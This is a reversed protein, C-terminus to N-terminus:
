LQRHSSRHQRRGLGRFVRCTESKEPAHSSPDGNGVGLIHTKGNIRFTIKNDATPVLRGKADRIGVDVVLIDNTRITFRDSSLDIKAAEGTTEIQVSAAEGGDRYGKAELMGPEYVVQWELHGNHSMSQRGLSVGNLSLEVAECNSFCWVDILEGERGAWNWHPFLHLVTKDSWWSQYYYYNDKPFGCLDMIGFNSNVCPWNYPLPEGRYDFGSWVFVGAVFPRSSWYKWMDEATAGWEPLTKGYASPYGKERQELYIGRTSFTSATESAVVPHAPHDAHFKDVDGCAIYNCGHVDNLLSFASGWDGNMSTTVMRSPDLSRVLRKMSALTRAGVDSGQLIHEENGLSWIVISPHNRDRRIMNELQGLVEVSSGMIRNEDMVLMGLRDCVDLLASASPNHACRYANCGMEQLKRVRFEWLKDPVAVGVGAADQHCCVGKLKITKGNLSFGNQTDFRVSRIGFITAESDTVDEGRKVETILRYLYPHELSWLQPNNLEVSCSVTDSNWEPLSRQEIKFQAVISDGQDLVTYMVQFAAEGAGQNVLESQIHLRACQGAAAEVVESRVFTRNPVLHLPDARTLWVHRYIGAGEYFWGEFFSADVRVVVVNRNGYNAYDTIDYGFGTYGSLHRGLYHGNLWAISDRFVGDFDLNLRLGEDEESIDLERRYWGISTGPFARGLPKYGHFPDAEPVFDLEVAWDHPLDVTRWRSDDFDPRVAGVADGTKTKFAPDGGGYEFDKAMDSAHGLHFKWGKDICLRKSM